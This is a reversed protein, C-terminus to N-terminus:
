GGLFDYFAFQRLKMLCKPIAKAFLTIGDVYDGEQWGQGYRATALLM